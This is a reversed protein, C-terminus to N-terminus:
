VYTNKEDFPTTKNDRRPTVSPEFENGVTGLALRYDFRTSVLRFNIASVGKPTKDFNVPDNNSLFFQGIAASRSNHQSLRSPIRTPRHAYNNLNYGITHCVNCEATSSLVVDPVCTNIQVATCAIM